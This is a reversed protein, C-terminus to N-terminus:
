KVGRSADIARNIIKLETITELLSAKTAELEETLSVNKRKERRLSAFSVRDGIEEIASIFDETREFLFGDVNFSVIIGFRKPDQYTTVECGFIHKIAECADKESIKRM